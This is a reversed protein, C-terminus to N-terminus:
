RVELGLHPVSLCFWVSKGVGGASRTVGWRTCLLGVLLLGRGGEALEDLRGADRPTPWGPGADTVEGVLTGDWRDLTLRVGIPAAGYTVANSVLESLALVAAERAHTEVGWLDLSKAASRRCQWVGSPDGSLTLTASLPTRRAPHSVATM